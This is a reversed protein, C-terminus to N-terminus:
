NPSLPLLVNHKIKKYLIHQLRAKGLNHKQPDTIKKRVKKTSVTHGNIHVNWVKATIHVAWQCTTAADEHIKSNRLRGSADVMVYDVALM